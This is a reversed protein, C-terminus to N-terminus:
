KALWPSFALERLLEVWDIHTLAYPDSLFKMMPKYDHKPIDTTIGFGSHYFGLFLGVITIIFNGSKQFIKM